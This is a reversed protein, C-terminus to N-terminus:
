RGTSNLAFLCNLSAFRLLFFPQSCIQKNKGCEQIKGGREHVIERMLNPSVSREKKIEIITPYGLMQLNSLVATQVLTFFTFLTTM